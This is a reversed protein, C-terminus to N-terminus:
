KIEEYFDWKDMQFQHNHFHPGLRLHSWRSQIGNADTAVDQDETTDVLNEEREFRKSQLNHSEEHHDNGAKSRVKREKRGLTGTLIESGDNAATLDVVNVLARNVKPAADVSPQEDEVRRSKPLPREIKGPVTLKNSDTTPRDKKTSVAIKKTIATDRDTKSDVLKSSNNSDSIPRDKKTSVATKKTITAPRDTKSAVLKSSNNSDTIPRDKKTSVAAKKAIAAARDTNSDVFKNSHNLIADALRTKAEKWLKKFAETNLESLNRKWFKKRELMIKNRQAVDKIHAIRDILDNALKAETSDSMASIKNALESRNKKLLPREVASVSVASEKDLNDHLRKKRPKQNKRTDSTSPAAKALTVKSRAKSKKHPAQRALSPLVSTDTLSPRKLARIVSSPQKETSIKKVPPSLSQAPKAAVNRFVSHAIETAHLTCYAGRVADVDKENGPYFHVRRVNEKNNGGWKACGVHLGLQCTEDDRLSRHCDRFEHYEDRDHAMCQIPFRLTNESTDDAGCIFCKYHNKLHQFARTWANHDEGPKRMLYVFHHVPREGDEYDSENYDVGPLAPNMSRDDDDDSDSDFEEDYGYDGYPTCGYLFGKSSLVFACLSHAWALRPEPDVRMIQRGGKGHYDYLPHMAHIGGRWSCLDCVTPRSEQILSLREGNANRGEVQISKGVSKCAWCVFNKEKFKPMGYCERHVAVKCQTCHIMVLNQHGDKYSCIDCRVVSESSM